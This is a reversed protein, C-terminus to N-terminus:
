SNTHKYAKRKERFFQSLLRASEYHRVGGMVTFRHNLRDDKYLNYGLSISGGKPDYAGFVLASIRAQVMAALCMPCPELTVVLTAGTLRWSGLEATAKRIAAIEAHDCPDNTQEKLNHARAIVQGDNAVIVAGVPVEDARFAAEAEELALTMNWEADVINM